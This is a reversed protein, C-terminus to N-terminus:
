LKSDLEDGSEPIWESRFKSLNEKARLTAGIDRSLRSRETEIRSLIQLDVDVIKKVLADKRHLENEILPALTQTDINRDLEGVAQNLKRDYLAIAKLISDREGELDPLKTFDGRSLHDSLTQESIQLYRELCRNKSRLLGLVDM